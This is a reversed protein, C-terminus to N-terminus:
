LGRSLAAEVAMQRAEETLGIQRMNRLIERIAGPELEGLSRNGVTTLILLLTLGRRGDQAAGRLDALNAEALGFRREVDIETLHPQWMAQQAEAEALGDMLAYLYAIREAADRGHRARTHRVWDELEAPGFQSPQGALRTLAALQALAAPARMERAALVQYWAFGFETDQAWFAARGAREAYRAQEAAPATERVAPLTVRAVMAAHAPNGSSQAILWWRDLVELRPDGAARAQAARYLIARRTLDYRGADIRPAAAFHAPHVAVEAYAARLTEAEMAGLAVAAEMARLRRSYPGNDSQAAARLYAPHGTEAFDGPLPLQTALLLVTTFATPDALTDIAADSEPRQADVLTLFAPSLQVNQEELLRLGLQAEDHQGALANCVVLAQELYATTGGRAYEGVAPCARAPGHHLLLTEIDARAREASAGGRPVGNLLKEVDEFRGMALFRQARLGLLDARAEGEPPEAPTALLRWTLQRVTLSPSRDPLRPLLSEVAQRDAGHWLDLGFGGEEVSLFGVAELNPPGLEEHRIRPRDEGGRRADRTNREAQDQEYRGRSDQATDEDEEFTRDEDRRVRDGAPNEGGRDFREQAGTEGRAEDGRGQGSEDGGPVIRIPPGVRREGQEGTDERYQGDSQARAQQAAAPLVALSAAVALAAACGLFSGFHAHLIAM